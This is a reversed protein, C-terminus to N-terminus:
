RHMEISRPKFKQSVDPQFLGVIMLGRILLAKASPSFILGSYCNCIICEM